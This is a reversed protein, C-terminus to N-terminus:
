LDDGLQAVATACAIREITKLMNRTNLVFMLCWGVTKPIVISCLIQPVRSPFRSRKDHPMFVYNFNSGASWTVDLGDGASARRGMWEGPVDYFVCDARLGSNNYTLLNEEKSANM